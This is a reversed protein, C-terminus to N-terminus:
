SFGRLSSQLNSGGGMGDMVAAAINSAVLHWTLPCWVPHAHNLFWPKHKILVFWKLSLVLKVLIIYVTTFYVKAEVFVTQFTLISVLGVNFLLAKRHLLNFLSILCFMRRGSWFQTFGCIQEPFEDLDASWYNSTSDKIM